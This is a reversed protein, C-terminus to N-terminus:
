KQTQKFYRLDPPQQGKRAPMLYGDGSMFYNDKGIIVHNNNENCNDEYWLVNRDRRYHKDVTWPRTFAHDIITIENHMMDKDTKDLYIREKVVTQNDKHMPIGTSDFTRPGKLGRTEVTLLDYRGDGDQDIWQGISYGSFMPEIEQPWDRGDTYIRRSDHIHEILLYTTEPTIIVEMPEYVNMQRPMGPPLCTVTPPDGQGGTAQDRLNAEFIAQYEPTLPAQQRRGWPKDPDWGTARIRSWQGQLDPYAAGDAAGAQAIAACAAAILAAAAIARRALRRLRM